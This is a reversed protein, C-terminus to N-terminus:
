DLVVVPMQENENAAMDDNLSPQNDALEGLDITKNANTQYQSLAGEFELKNCARLKSTAFDSQM